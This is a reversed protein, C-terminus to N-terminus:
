PFILYDCPYGVHKGYIQMLMPLCINVEAMALLSMYEEITKLFVSATFYMRVFGRLLSFLHYTGSTLKSFIREVTDDVFLDRVLM